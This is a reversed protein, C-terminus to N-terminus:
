HGVAIPPTHQPHLRGQNRQLSIVKQNELSKKKENPTNEIKLLARKLLALTMNGNKGASVESSLHHFPTKNWSLSLRSPLTFPAGTVHLRVPHLDLISKPLFFFFFVTPWLLLTDLQLELVVTGKIIINRSCRLVSFCKVDARQFYCYDLRDLRHFGDALSPPLPTSIKHFSTAYECRLCKGELHGSRMYTHCVM